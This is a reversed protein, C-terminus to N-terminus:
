DMYFDTLIRVNSNKDLILFMTNLESLVNHKNSKSMRLDEISKLSVLTKQDVLKVSNIYYFATLPKHKMRMRALRKSLKRNPMDKPNRIAIGFDIKILEEHSGASDIYKQVVEALHELSKKASYCYTVEAAVKDVDSFRFKITNDQHYFFMWRKEGTKSDVFSTNPNM